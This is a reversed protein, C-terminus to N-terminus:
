FVQVSLKTYVSQYASQQYTSLYISLIVVREKVVVFISRYSLFFMFDRYKLVSFLHETYLKIVANFSAGDCNGSCSINSWHITKKKGKKIKMKNYFIKRNRKQCFNNQTQINSNIDSEEKTIM